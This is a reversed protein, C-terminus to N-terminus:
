IPLVKRLHPLVTMQQILGGSDYWHDDFKEAVMRLVGEARSISMGWLMKLCGLSQEQACTALKEEDQAIFPAVWHDYIERGLTSYYADNVLPTHM